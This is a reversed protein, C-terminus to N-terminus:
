SFLVWVRTETFLVMEEPALFSAALRAEEGGKM